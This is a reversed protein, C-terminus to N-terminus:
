VNFLVIGANFNMYRWVTIVTFFVNDKIDEDIEETIDVSIIIIIVVWLFLLSYVRSVARSYTASFIIFWFGSVSWSYYGTDNDNYSKSNYNNRM